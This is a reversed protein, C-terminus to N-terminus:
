RLMSIYVDVSSVITIVISTIISLRIQITLWSQTPVLKIKDPNIPNYVQMLYDQLAEEVVKKIGALRPNELVLVDKTTINGTNARVTDRYELICDLEDPTFDRDINNLWLCTPFMSVPEGKIM